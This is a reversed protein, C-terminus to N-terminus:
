ARVDVPIAFRTRPVVHFIFNERKTEFVTELVREQSSYGNFRTCILIFAIYIYKFIYVIAAPRGRRGDISPCTFIWLRYSRKKETYLYIKVPYSVIVDRWFTASM